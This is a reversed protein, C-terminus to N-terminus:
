GPWKSLWRRASLISRLSLLSFVGCSGNEPRNERPLRCSRDRHPGLKGLPIVTASVCVGATVKGTEFGKLRFKLM